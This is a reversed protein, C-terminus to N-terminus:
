RNNKTWIKLDELKQSGYYSEYGCLDGAMVPISTLIGDSPTYVLVFKFQSIKDGIVKRVSPISLHPAVVFCGLNELNDEKEKDSLREAVFERLQDKLNTKGHIFGAIGNTQNSLSM